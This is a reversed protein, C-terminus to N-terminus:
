LSYSGQCCLPSQTQKIASHISLNCCHSVECHTSGARGWFNLLINYKAPSALGNAGVLSDKINAYYQPTRTVGLFSWLTFFFLCTYIYRYIGYIVLHPPAKWGGIRLLICAAWNWLFTTITCVPLKNTVHLCKLIIISQSCNYHM